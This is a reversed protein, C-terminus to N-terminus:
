IDQCGQGLTCFLIAKRTVPVMKRYVPQIKGIPFIQISVSLKSM